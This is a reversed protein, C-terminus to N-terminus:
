RDRHVSSISGGIGPLVAHWYGMEAELSSVRGTGEPPPGYIHWNCHLHMSVVTSVSFLQTFFPMHCFITCSWTSMTRFFALCNIFLFISDAM